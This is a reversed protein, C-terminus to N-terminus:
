PKPRTDRLTAGGHQNMYDATPNNIRREADEREVRYRLSEQERKRRAAAERERRRRRAPAGAVAPGCLLSAVGALFLRRGIM